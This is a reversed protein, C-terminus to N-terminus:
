IELESIKQELERVMALQERVIRQIQPSRLYNDIFVTDELGNRVNNVGITIQDAKDDDFMHARVEKLFDATEAEPPFSTDRAGARKIQYGLYTHCCIGKERAENLEELLKKNREEIRPIHHGRQQFSAPIPSPLVERWDMEANEYLHLGPEPRTEEYVKELELLGQYAFLPIGLYVSTATVQDSLRSLKVEEALGKRKAGEAAKQLEPSTFPVFVTNKRPCNGIDFFGNKWFLPESDNIINIVYDILELGAIPKQFFDMMNQHTVFFFEQLVYNATLKAIKGENQTIWEPWQQFMAGVFKRNIAELNMAVVTKDLYGKIDELTLIQRTFPDSPWYGRQLLRGNEQFTHILTDMVVTMVHFFDNYLRVIQDRLEILLNKMSNHRDIIALHVYWHNLAELYGKIRNAKNIFSAKALNQEAATLDEKRLVEQRQEASLREQNNRIYGDIIHLLNKNNWGGLLRMAFFPGTEMDMAYDQYLHYFIKSIISAPNQPIDYSKLPETMSERNKELKELADSLWSDAQDIVQRDGPIIDSRKVLELPYSIKYSIGETLQRLLGEYTM